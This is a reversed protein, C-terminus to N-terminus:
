KSEEERRSGEGRSRGEVERRYNERRRKYKIKLENCEKKKTLEM